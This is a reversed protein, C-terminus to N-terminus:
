SCEQSSEILFKVLVVIGVCELATTKYRIRDFLRCYSMSRIRLISHVVFFCPIIFYCLNVFVNDFGDAKFSGWLFLMSVALLIMTGIGFRVFGDRKQPISEISLHCRWTLYIDVLFCSILITIITNPSM